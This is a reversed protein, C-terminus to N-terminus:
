ELLMLADGRQMRGRLVMEDIGRTEIPWWEDAPGEGEVRERVREAM